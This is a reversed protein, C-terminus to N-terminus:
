INTVVLQIVTEMEDIQLMLMYSLFSGSSQTFMFIELLTILFLYNNVFINHM